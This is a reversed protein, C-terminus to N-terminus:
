SAEENTEDFRRIEHDQKNFARIVRVGELTELFLKNIKDIMNRLKVSYQSARVLIFAIVVIVIPIAIALVQALRGTTAVALVLGIAAMMPALLGVRFLMILFNQIVNVDTTNRSILSAFGFKDIEIASFTQVKRFLEKRLDASFKTSVTAALNTAVVNTACAVLSFVLMAIALYIIISQNNDSVSDIMMSVLTPSVMQAASAIAVFVVM